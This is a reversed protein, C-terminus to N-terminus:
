YLEPKPNWGRQCVEMGLVRVSLFVDDESRDSGNIVKLIAWGLPKHGKTNEEFLYFLLLHMKGNVMRLKRSKGFFFFIILLVPM